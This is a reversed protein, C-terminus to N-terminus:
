RTAEIILYFGLPRLPRALWLRARNWLTPSVMAAEGWAYEGFAQRVRVRCSTFAGFMRRIDGRSYVKVLVAQESSGVEVNTSLWDRIRRKTPLVRQVKIIGWIM